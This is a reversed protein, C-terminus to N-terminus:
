SSLKKINKKNNKSLYYGLRKKLSRKVYLFFLIGFITVSIVGSRSRSGKLKMFKELQYNPKIKKDAILIRYHKYLKPKSVFINYKLKRRMKHLFKTLDKYSKFSYNHSEKFVIELKDLLEPIIDIKKFTKNFIKSIDNRTFNTNFEQKFLKHNEIDM